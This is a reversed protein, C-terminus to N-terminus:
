RRAVREQAHDAPAAHALDVADVVPHEVADHGHLRQAGLVASVEFEVRPKEFLRLDGRLEIVRGDHGQVVMPAQGVAAQPQRHFQELPLRERLGNATNVQADLGARPGLLGTLPREGPEDLGKQPDTFGHGVRVGAPDHVAIEFRVIDHHALEALDIDHVPPQGLGDTGGGETGGASGREPGGDLGGAPGEDFGGPSGTFVV